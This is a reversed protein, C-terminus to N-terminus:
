QLNVWYLFKILVSVKTMRRAHKCVLCAMLINKLCYSLKIVYSIWISVLAICYAPYTEEINEQQMYEQISSHVALMVKHQENDKNFKM